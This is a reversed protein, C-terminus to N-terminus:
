VGREEASLELSADTVGFLPWRATLVFPEPPRPWLWLTERTRLRSGSIHFGPGGLVSFYPQAPPDQPTLVHDLTRATRGDMLTVGFWLVAPAPGDGVEVMGSELAVGPTTDTTHASVDVDIALGEPYARVEEVVISSQETRHIPTSM